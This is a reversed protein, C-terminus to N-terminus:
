EETKEETADAPVEAEPADIVTEDAPAKGYEVVKLKFNLTKGALPHNLDMTIETDTVATIKAPVQQGTPTAVALMMDVKPEMGEPLKDRPVNQTLQPNPEGYAQDPTLTIEKEEDVEMGLIADDFGKILQGAGAIFELPQGQKESSDFVSGDELTGTYHAKVKNGKEVPMIDDGHKKLM